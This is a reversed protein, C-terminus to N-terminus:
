INRLWSFIEDYNSKFVLSGAVVITAGSSALQPVTEKRIGGDAEIEFSAMGKKKTIRHIERIKSYTSPILSQGRIGIETGMILVMDLDDIIEYISSVPDPPSLAVSAKVGHKKIRSITERINHSAGLHASIINAGAEVFAEIYRDPNEIMLHVDFPVKTKPRLSKILDPFFLFNQTFHGDAVDFHYFDAYSKLEEIEEGLRSLRASWLSVSVKIM